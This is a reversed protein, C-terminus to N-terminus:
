FPGSALRSNSRRSRGVRRVAPARLPVSAGSAVEAILLQPLNPWLSAPRLGASIFPATSAGESSLWRRLHAKKM